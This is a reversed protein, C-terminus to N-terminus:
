GESVETTGDVVSDDGDRCVEVVRLTLSGLIGSQNGTEVDETNNVFGGSCGDGVTEVLLGLTLTVDEDEVQTTTGEINREQSDLLANELDLRSGSVGVQTTLIKVVTQDVVEGVLLSVWRIRINHAASALM